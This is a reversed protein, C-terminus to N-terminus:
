ATAMSGCKISGMLLSVGHTGSFDRQDLRAFALGQRSFIWGPPAQVEIGLDIAPLLCQTRRTELEVVWLDGAAIVVADRQNPHVAALRLGGLGERFNAVWKETNTEFEVVLGEQGRYGWEAPIPTAFPGSAPLGPLIRVLPRM